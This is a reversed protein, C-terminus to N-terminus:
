RLAANLRMRSSVGFRRLRASASLDVSRMCVLNRLRAAVLRAREPRAVFALVVQAEGGPGGTEFHVARLGIEPVALKQLVRALLLPEDTAVAHLRWCTPDPPSPIPDSPKM